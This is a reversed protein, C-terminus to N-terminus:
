YYDRNFVQRFRKPRTNFRQQMINAFYNPNMGYISLQNNYAQKQLEALNTANTGGQAVTTPLPLIEEVSTPTAAALATPSSGTSPRFSNGTGSKGLRPLVGKILSSPTVGGEITRKISDAQKASLTGPTNINKITSTAVNFMDANSLGVQGTPIGANVGGEINGTAQRYIDSMKGGILLNGGSGTIGRDSFSLAKVNPSDPNFGAAIKQLSTMNDVNPNTKPDFQGAVKSLTSLKPNQNVNALLNNIEDVRNKMFFRNNVKGQEIGGTVEQAGEITNRIQAKFDSPLNVNKQGTFAELNEGVKQATISKDGFRLARIAQDANVNNAIALAKNDADKIRNFDRYGEIADAAFNMPGQQEIGTKIDAYIDRPTVIGKGFVGTGMQDVDTIEKGAILGIGFDVAGLGKSFISRGTNSGEADSDVGGGINLGGADTSAVQVDKPARDATNIGLYESLGFEPVKFGGISLLPGRERAAAAETSFKDTGATGAYPNIAGITNKAIQDTVTNDRGQNFLTTAIGVKTLNNFLRRNAETPGTEFGGEFKTNFPKGTLINRISGYGPMGRFPNWAGKGVGKTRQSMSIEDGLVQKWSKSPSAGQNYWSGIDGGPAMMNATNFLNLGKAYNLARNPDFMSKRTAEAKAAAAKAAAEKKNAEAQAKGAASINFSGSPVTNGYMANDKDVQLQTNSKPAASSYGKVSYGAAKIRAQESKSFSKKKGGFTQVRTQKFKKHRKAAAKQAKTKPKKAM